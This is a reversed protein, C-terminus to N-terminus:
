NRVVRAVIYPSTPNGTGPYPQVELLTVRYGSLELQRPDLTTHITANATGGATRAELAVAADGQWVCVVNAPCRSENVLRAYTLTLRGDRTSARQGLPVRVTDDLAVSAQSGSDSAAVPMRQQSGTCAGCVLAALLVLRNRQWLIDLHMDAIM